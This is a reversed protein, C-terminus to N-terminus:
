CEEELTEIDTLLMAIIISPYNETPDNWRGKMEENTSHAEALDVIRLAKTLRMGREVLVAVLTEKVTAM